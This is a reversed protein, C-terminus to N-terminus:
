VSILPPTPPSAPAGLLQQVIEIIGRSVLIIGYGIVTWLLTRKARNINEPNGGSTMYQFAAVLIMITALPTAVWMLGDIVREIVEAISEARLPNPLEVALVKHVISLIM